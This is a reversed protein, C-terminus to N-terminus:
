ECDPNDSWCGTSKIRELRDSIFVMYYVSRGFWYIWVNISEKRMYAERIPEGCNRLVKRKSDGVSVISGSCRVRDSNYYFKLRDPEYLPEQSNSVTVQLLVMTIVMCFSLGKM